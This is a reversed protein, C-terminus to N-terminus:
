FRASVSIDFRCEVTDSATDFTMRAVEAHYKAALFSGHIEWMGSGNTKATGVLKDAGGTERFLKVERGVRCRKNASAVKGTFETAEGSIITVNSKVRTVKAATAPVGLLM